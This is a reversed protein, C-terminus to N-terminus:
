AVGDHLVKVTAKKVVNNTKANLWGPTILNDVVWNQSPTSLPKASEHRAEDFAEGTNPKIEELGAKQLVRSLENRIEDASHIHGLFIGEVLDIVNKIVAEDQPPRENTLLTRLDHEILRSSEQVHATAEKVHERYENLLEVHLKQAGEKLHDQIATKLEEITPESSM